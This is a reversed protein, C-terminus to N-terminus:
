HMSVREPERSFEADLADPSTGSPVAEPRSASRDHKQGIVATAIANGLINTATRGMDLLQDIVLLVGIGAAPIGFGPFVAAVVVLSGRPVGAMGKSSLLLMATMAIQQGLDM